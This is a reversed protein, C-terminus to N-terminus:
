SICLLVPMMTALILANIEFFIAALLPVAIEILM